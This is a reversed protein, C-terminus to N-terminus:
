TATLNNVRFADGLHEFSLFITNAASTTNETENKNEVKHGVFNYMMMFGYSGHCNGLRVHEACSLRARRLRVRAEHAYWNATPLDM